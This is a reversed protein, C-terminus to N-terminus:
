DASANATPQITKNPCEGEFILTGISCPEYDKPKLDQKVADTIGLMSFGFVIVLFCICWLIIPGGAGYFGKHEGLKIEIPGVQYELTMVITFALIGAFVAAVLPLFSPHTPIDHWFRIGYIISVGVMIFYFTNFLIPSIVRKPKGGIEEETNEM